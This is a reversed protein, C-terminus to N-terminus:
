WISAGVPNCNPEPPTVVASGIVQVDQSATNTCGELTELTYTYTVIVPSNTTNTLVENIANSGLSTAPSIGPVFNRVWNYNVASSSTPTYNFTTNSCVEDTLSSSLVPPAIVTIPLVSPIGNGCDNKGEVTLLGSTASVNYDFTITNSNTPVVSGDPLTWVYELANAIPAVSYVNGTSGACVENSGIIVGAVM